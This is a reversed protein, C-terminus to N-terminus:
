TQSYGSLWLRKSGTEPGRTKNLAYNLVGRHVILSSAQRSDKGTYVRHLGSEGANNKGRIGGPVTRTLIM